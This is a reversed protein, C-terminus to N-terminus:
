AETWIAAQIFSPQLVGAPLEAPTPLQMRSAGACSQWPLAGIGLGPAGRALIAKRNPAKGNPDRAVHWESANSPLFIVFKGTSYQCQLPLRGVNQTHPFSSFALSASYDENITQKREEKGAGRGRWGAPLSSHSPTPPPPAPHFVCGVQM